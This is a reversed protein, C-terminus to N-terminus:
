NTTSCTKGFQSQICSIDTSDIASDSNIDSNACTVGANDKGTIGRSTCTVASSYDTISVRKDKNVDAKCPTCVVGYKTILITYDAVSIKGDQNFDYTANFGSDGQKKGFTSIFATVSYPAIVKFSNPDFKNLLGSYDVISIRGDKNYDYKVNYNSNGKVSGFSALFEDFSYTIPTISPSPRPSPSPSPIPSPKVCAKGFQSQICSLDKDNISSDKNTDSNACSLGANDKGSIGRSTCTVASSYDTTSVRGNKNVDAACADCAVVKVGYKNILISYDLISIRGDQNFDYIANFGSQGKTKGMTALFGTISYPATVKFSNPDFKNLLASYDLISIKGDSNYDYKANYNSDAKTSGFAAVFEDFSYVYQSPSESVTEGLTAGNLTEIAVPANAAKNNTQTQSVFYGGAGLGVLLLVLLALHAVGKQNNFYKM